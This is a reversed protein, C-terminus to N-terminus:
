KCVEEVAVAVVLLTGLVAVVEVVGGEVWVMQWGEEEEGM